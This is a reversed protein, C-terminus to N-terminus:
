GIMQFEPLMFIAWLLDAVAGVSPKSGLANEAARRERANPARGLAYWFIRDVLDGATTFAPPPPVPTEPAVAVLREPNPEDKFVFFRVNPQIDDKICREDLTAAGRVRVFGQGAIDYVLRSPTNVRIAPGASSRLGSPDAPKLASLKVVSGNASSLEVDVWVAEVKEPEYSDVDEVLLWLKSAQSIDTDFRVPDPGRNRDPMRINESDFIAAPEPPLEGLLKKAGRMLWHTIKEGNVLELAQLTTSDNNRVSIVQDRIPRGLARTLSSAGVRWERSYTGIKASQRSSVRWEGTIAGIADAFQEATLRRIEPGRFVFQRLPDGAQPVSPLEYARSALITALERKIDYGNAVFESALWDLLEPSWPEGDMEDPPNVIGRGLLREWFRNVLTRALRGDRPDTFISAITARRDALSSSPAARSLPPFLFGPEAFQGTANDCRFLELKPEPAFYGALAYADKLKWKSIFSDHCSNCKLNVGLFIQATNQAAQMYPTQSANIDGRWNVGVLFGDPDGTSAPNLLKTVFQDYPLNKELAPLLWATISKRSGAYGVGEDNRLLDNWFSIWNESYNRNDALLKEVLLSRKAPNRDQVFARLDGPSPLLGWVDLYLRRAFMADSVPQPKAVGHRVLYASVFRDLPSNWDPWTLPPEGPRDLTLPAEWKSRAVASAPTERAGQDIWAQIIGVELPTLPQNGLPMSPQVEGTIRRMLLSEASRGPKVVAGSRGGDLVASYSALALGGSRKEASHCLLCKAALIPHVDRNFDIPVPATFAPSSFFILALVGAHSRRSM